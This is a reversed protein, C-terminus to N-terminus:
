RPATAQLRYSVGFDGLPAGGREHLYQLLAASLGLQALVLFALLGRGIVRLSRGWGDRLVHAPGLLLTALWVHQLPYAVVTYHRYLPLGSMTILLGFGLSGGVVLLSTSSAADRARWRPISRHDLGSISWISRVLWVLIASVACAVLAITLWAGPGGGLFEPLHPGLAYDAAEYGFPDTLWLRLFETRLGAHVRPKPAAGASWLYHLWPLMAISGVLSGAFWSAWHVSNRSRIWTWASIGAAFFFGPMHMQGLCAGVGGWTFAGARTNRRRFGILYALTFISFISLLWLKRHFLVAHPSAALLSVGWLWPEREEDRPLRWAALALLGVALVNLGMVAHTLEAPDRAGTLRALAVFAWVSLGPNRTGVSSPMGLAPWPETRGVAIARAYTYREDAKFEFDTPYALRLLGGASLVLVFLTAITRRHTM